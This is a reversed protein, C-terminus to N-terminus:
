RWGASRRGPSGAIPSSEQSCRFPPSRCRSGSFSCSTLHPVGGPAFGPFLGTALGAGLAFPVAIGTLAIMVTARLQGRFVTTDLEVGVLFMYLVVGLQSVLNLSPAVSAAPYLRVRRALPLGLLSPGLLIGAVVEGIVPPQGVGRFLYGLLRGLLVLAALAAL